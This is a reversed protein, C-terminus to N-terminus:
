SFSRFLAEKQKRDAENAIVDKALMLDRVSLLELAESAEHIAAMLTCAGRYVVSNSAARAM